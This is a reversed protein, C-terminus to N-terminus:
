ATGSGVYRSLNPPPIRSVVMPVLASTHLHQVRSAQRKKQGLHILLLFFLDPSLDLVRVLPVGCLEWHLEAQVGYLVASKPRLRRCQGPRWKGICWLSRARPALASVASVSSASSAGCPSASRSSRFGLRRHPRALSVTFQSWSVVSKQSLKNSRGPQPATFSRQSAPRTALLAAIATLIDTLSRAPQRSDPLQFPPRVQFGRPISSSTSASQPQFPTSITSTLTPM